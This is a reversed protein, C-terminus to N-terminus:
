VAVKEFTEPGGITMQFRWADVNGKFVDSVRKYTWKNAELYEFVRQMPTKPEGKLTFCDPFDYTITYEKLSHQPISCVWDFMKTLAATPSKEGITLWTIDIVRIAQDIVYALGAQPSDNQLVVGMRHVKDQAKFVKMLDAETQVFLPRVGVDFDADTKLPYCLNELQALAAIHEKRPPMYQLPSSTPKKAAPKKSSGLPGDLFDMGM